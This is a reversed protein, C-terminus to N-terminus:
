CAPDLLVTAKFRPPVLQRRRCARVHTAVVTASDTRVCTDAGAQMVDIVSEAPDLLSLVAVIVTDPLRRRADRVKADTPALLVLLDPDGVEVHRHHTVTWRPPLYEALDGKRLTPGVVAVLVEEDFLAAATM